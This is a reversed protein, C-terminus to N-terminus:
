KNAESVINYVDIRQLDCEPMGIFLGGYNYGDEIKEIRVIEIFAHIVEKTWITLYAEYVAGMELLEDGEFGIGTKSVNLVEVGVEHQENSDLRKAILKSQLDTRKSKRREDM